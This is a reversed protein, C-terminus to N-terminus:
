LAKMIVPKESMVFVTANANFLDVVSELAMGALWMVLKKELSKKFPIWNLMGKIPDVVNWIFYVLEKGFKIKATRKEQENMTNDIICSSMNEVIQYVEIAINYIFRFSQIVSSFGWGGLNAFHDSLRKVLDAIQFGYEKLCDEFSLVGKAKAVHDHLKQELKAINEKHKQPMSELKYKYLYNNLFSM